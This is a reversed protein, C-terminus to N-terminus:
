RAAGVAKRIGAVSEPVVADVGLQGLAASSARPDGNTGDSRGKAAAQAFLDPRVLSPDVAMMLSTDASGAHIGIQAASLGKAKLGRM